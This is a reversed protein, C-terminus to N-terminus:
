AEDHAEDTRYQAIVQQAISSPVPDYHSFAMTFSGDGGTISRLDNSYTQMESMPAKAKIIAYNGAQDQTTVRGRRSPLDSLISGVSDIPVMIEIDVIPEMLVPKAMKVAERFAMRGAMQFAIDKSDVM